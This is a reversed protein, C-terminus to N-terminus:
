TGTSDAPGTTGSTGTAGTTGTSATTSDVGSGITQDPSGTAGSSTDLAQAIGPPLGGFLGIAGLTLICLLAGPRCGRGRLFGRDRLATAGRDGCGVIYTRGCDVYRLSPNM